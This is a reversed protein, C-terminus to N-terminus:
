GRSGGENHLVLFGHQLLDRAATLTKVVVAAQDLGIEDAVQQVVDRLTRCGDLRLMVQLVEADVEIKLRLGSTTAVTCRHSDYVGAHHNLVQHVEHRDVLHLVADLLARDTRLSALLDQGEFLRLVHEGAPEEPREPLSVARVWNHEAPRRRVVVAGGCLATIGLRRYYDLWRDLTVSFASPDTTRLPANWTAAYSMPDDTGFHLVLGDGAAGALWRQPPEEWAEGRRLAWNCLIHAFGGETLRSVAETVVMRSLDDGPLPSDRFLLESDPSVVFPPNSVILDFQEGAVPDFWSGRRCEVNPARNLRSNLRTFAIARPNLDVATVGDSHRSALLAHMGSGCGLDLSSRVPRRVTLFDLLRATPSSSTVWGPQELIADDRDGFLLLDGVCLLQALSSAAGDLVSLLFADQLQGLDIPALARRAEDEAVPLGLLFLRILTALRDGPPVQRDYLPLDQPRLGRRVAPLVSRVGLQTYNAALLVDRLTDVLAPDDLVPGPTELTPM